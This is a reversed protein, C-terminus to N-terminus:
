FIPKNVMMAKVLDELDNNKSDSNKIDKFSLVSYTPMDTIFITDREKDPDIFNIGFASMKLAFDQWTGADILDDEMLDEVLLEDSSHLIYINNYNSFGGEATLASHMTNQLNKNTIIKAVDNENKIKNAKYKEILDGAFILDTLGIEGSRFELWRQEFSEDKDTGLANKLLSDSNTFRVIPAIIFPLSIKMENKDHGEKKVMTLDINLVKIFHDPTKLSKEADKFTLDYKIDPNSKNHTTDTHSTTNQANEGDEIVNNEAIDGETADNGVVDDELGAYVKYNSELIKNLANDTNDETGATKKLRGIVSKYIKKDTVQRALITTDVGYVNSLIKIAQLFYAAFTNINFKIINTLHKNDMYELKDSVVVLPRVIRDTVVKTIRGSFMFDPHKKIFDEPNKSYHDYGAFLDYISKIAGVNAHNNLGSLLGADLNKVTYKKM